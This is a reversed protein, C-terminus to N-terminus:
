LNRSRGRYQPTAGNLVMDTKKVMRTGSVTLAQRQLKLKEPVGAELAAKSVFTFSSAAM